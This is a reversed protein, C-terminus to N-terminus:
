SPPLSPFLPRADKGYSPFFFLPPPPDFFSSSSSPNENWPPPRPPPPLVQFPPCPPLCATGGEEKSLAPPPPVVCSPLSSSFSPIFGGNARPPLSGEEKGLILTKVAGGVLTPPVSPPLINAFGTGGSPPRAKLGAKERRRQCSALPPLLLLPFFSWHSQQMASAATEGQSRGRSIIQSRIRFLKSTPPLAFHWSLIDRDTWTCILLPLKPQNAPQSANLFIQRASM